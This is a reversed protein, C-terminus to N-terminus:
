GAGRADRLGKWGLLGGALGVVAGLWVFPPVDAFGVDAGAAHYRMAVALFWAVFPVPTLSLGVLAGRSGRRLGFWALSTVAIGMAGLAASLMTMYIEVTQRLAPDAAYLQAVPRGFLMADARSSMFIFREGMFAAVAGAGLGGALAMLAGWVMFIAASATLTANRRANPTSPTM